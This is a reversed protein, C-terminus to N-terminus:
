KNTAAIFAELKEMAKGSDILEGALKIGAALSDAKEGIYLAAGANLLVTTRKPGREKGSLIDKTIQANEEPTGGVLDEKKCSELEFDEPCIDYTRYFGDKFECVMTPGVASIEDLKEKGFVVM